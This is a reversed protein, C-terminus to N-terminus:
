ASRAAKIEYHVGNMHYSKIALGASQLMEKIDRSSTMSKHALVVNSATTTDIMGNIVNKCFARVDTGGIVIEGGMRLKNILGQIVQVASSVPFYNMVDPALILECENDAVGSLDIDSEKIYAHHFNEVSEEETTLVQLKM